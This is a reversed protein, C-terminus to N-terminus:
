IPEVTEGWGEPTQVRVKLSGAHPSVPDYRIEFRALLSLYAQSVAGEVGAGNEVQVYRGGVQECFHRVTANESASIVQLSARSALVAAALGEDPGDALEVPALVILHRLGPKPSDGPLVARRV